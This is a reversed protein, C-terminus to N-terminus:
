GCCFRRVVELYVGAAQELEDAPVFEGTKHAERIDGPGFVVAQAGLGVLYPLETGFPITGPAKGTLQSVLQALPAGPHSSAAPDRRIVEFTARFEPDEASLRAIAARVRHAVEEGDQGPLPRWELPFRVSGAIVNRAKGGELTGVNLTTYPPSFDPHQLGKMEHAVQELATLLRAAKWVASVGTEPFASHGEVGHVEVQAAWYGKHAFVPIMRTPEAVLAHEVSLAREEMLRRAGLCGIEEDATAVVWLPERLLSLDVREVAWLACALGAKTDVSGRGFLKGERETLQLAEDWASDYPVTDTHAVLALGGERRPGARALLNVKGETHPRLSVEFGLKELRSQLHHAIPLNSRASVSDIAVLDRLLTSLM